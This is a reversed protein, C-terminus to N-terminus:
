TGEDLVIRKWKVSFLISSSKGTESWEASVTHYTTLVIDVGSLDSLSTIRSKAHHLAFKLAGDFTHRYNILLFFCFLLAPILNRGCVRVNAGGVSKPSRLTLPVAKSTLPSSVPLHFSLLRPQFQM